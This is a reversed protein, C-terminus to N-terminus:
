DRRMSGLVREATVLPIEGVVSVLFTESPSSLYNIYITTAGRQANSPPLFTELVSEVFVSFVSLGDAYVLVVRDDDLKNEILKFGEPM